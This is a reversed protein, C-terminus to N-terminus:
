PVNSKTPTAPGRNRYSSEKAVYPISARQWTSVPLPFLYQLASASFYLFIPNLGLPSLFRFFFISALYLALTQPPAVTRGSGGGCHCCRSAVDAAIATDKNTRSPFNAGGSALPSFLCTSM